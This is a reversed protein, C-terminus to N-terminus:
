NESPPDIHDIVISDLKTKTPELKLGLDKEIATFLSPASFEGAVGVDVPSFQYRFDYKGDLGTKDIVM